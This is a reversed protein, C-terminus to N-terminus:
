HAGSAGCTVFPEYASIDREDCTSEGHIRARARFVASNFLSWHLVPTTAADDVEFRLAVVLRSTWFNASAAEGAHPADATTAFSAGMVSGSRECLGSVMMVSEDVIAAMGALAREREAASFADTDARPISEWTELIPAPISVRVIFGNGDREVDVLIEKFRAPDDQTRRGCSCSTAARTTSDGPPTVRITEANGGTTIVITQPRSLGRDSVGLVAQWPVRGLESEPRARLTLLMSAAPLVYRISMEQRIERLSRLAISPGATIETQDAAVRGAIRDGRDDILAIGDALRVRHRALAAWLDATRVRDNADPRLDGYHLLDEADIQLRVDLERGSVQIDGRSRLFPHAFAVAPVVGLFAACAALRRCARKSPRM